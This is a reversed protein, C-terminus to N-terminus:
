SDERKEFKIRMSRRSSDGDVYFATILFALLGKRHRRKQLIIVYDWNELWIYTRIRGNNEKFDWVKVSKDNSHSITPGCWPLREARRPDFLRDKRKAQEKTILHWFGEEYHEGQLIQRDWWVLIGQFTRETYKFDQEFIKYLRSLVEAWEGNISVIEPLWDPKQIM